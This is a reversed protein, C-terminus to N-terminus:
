LENEDDDDDNFFDDIEDNINDIHIDSINESTRSNLIEDVKTKVSRFIENNEHTFGLNEATIIRQAQAKESPELGNLYRTTTSSNENTKVNCYYYSPGNKNVKTEVGMRKLVIGYINTPCKTIDIGYSDKIKSAIDPFTIPINHTNKEIPEIYAELTMEYISKSRFSEQINKMKEEDVEFQKDIFRWNSNVYQYYVYGWVNSWNIEDIGYKCKVKPYRDNLSEFKDESSLVLFRRNGTNDGLVKLQNSTGLITSINKREISFRNYPLRYSLTPTSTFKKLQEVDAKKLTESEDDFLILKESFTAVNDKNNFDLSKMSTTLNYENFPKLLYNNIFYSKGTGQTSSLMYLVEEARNTNPQANQIVCLMWRTIFKHTIEKDDYPLAEAFNNYDTPNNTSISTFFDKIKDTRLLNMTSDLYLLMRQKTMKKFGLYNTFFIVITNVATDDLLSVKKIDIQYYNDSKMKEIGEYSNIHSSIYDGNILNDRVVKLGYVDLLGIIDDEEYSSYFKQFQVMLDLTDENYLDDDKFDYLEELFDLKSYDIYIKNLILKFSYKVKRQLNKEYDMFQQRIDEIFYNSYTNISEIFDLKINIDNSKSSVIKFIIDKEFDNNILSITQEKIYFKVIEFDLDLGKDIKITRVVDSYNVNKKTKKNGM